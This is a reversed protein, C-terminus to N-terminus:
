PKVVRGKKLAYDDLRLYHHGEIERTQEPFRQSALPALMGLREYHRFHRM